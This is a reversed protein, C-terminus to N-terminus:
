PALRYLLPHQKGVAQCDVGAQSRSRSERNIGVVKWVSFIDRLSDDEQGVLWRQGQRRQQILSRGQHHLGALGM